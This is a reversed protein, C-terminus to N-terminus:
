DQTKFSEIQTLQELKSSCYRKFNEYEVKEADDSFSSDVDWLKTWSQVCKEDPAMGIDHFFAGLVLLMLEPVSFKEITEIPVLKEMLRLVRFLHDGDHLTFEGMHRLITKTRQYAYYTAEDVLSLVHEGASDGKCKNELIKYINSKKLRLQTEERWDDQM